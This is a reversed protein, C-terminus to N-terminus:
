KNKGKKKAEANKRKITKNVKKTFANRAQVVQGQLNTMDVRFDIHEINSGHERILNNVRVAAEQLHGSQALISPVDIIIKKGVKLNLTLERIYQIPLSEIKIEDIVGEWEPNNAEDGQLIIRGPNKRDM